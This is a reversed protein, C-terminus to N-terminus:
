TLVAWMLISPFSSLFVAMEVAIEKWSIMKDGTSMLMPGHSFYKQDQIDGFLPPYANIHPAM